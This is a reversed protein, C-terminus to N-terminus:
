VAAGATVTSWGSSSMVTAPAEQDNLDIINALPAEQDQDSPGEAGKEKGEVGELAVLRILRGWPRSMENEPLM